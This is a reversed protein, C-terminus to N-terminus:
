KISPAKIQISTNGQSQLKIEVPETSILMNACSVDANSANNLAYVQRCYVRIKLKTFVPIRLKAETTVYLTKGSNIVQFFDQLNEDAEIIVKEEDSQIIEVPSHVSIHLRIFSSVKIEKEIVNGNGRLEIM